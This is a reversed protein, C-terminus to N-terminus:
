VLPNAILGINTHYEFDSRRGVKLPLRLSTPPSKMMLHSHHRSTCKSKSVKIIVSEPDKGMTAPVSHDITDLSSQDDGM